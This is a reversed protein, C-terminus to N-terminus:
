KSTDIFMLEPYRNIGLNYILEASQAFVAGLDFYSIRAEDTVHSSTQGLSIGIFHRFDYPDYFHTLGEPLQKQFEDSDFDDPDGKWIQWLENDTLEIGVFLSNQFYYSM